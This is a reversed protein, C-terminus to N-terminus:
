RVNIYDEDEPTLNYHENFAQIFTNDGSMLAITKDAYYEGEDLLNNIWDELLQDAIETMVVGSIHDPINDFASMNQREKNHHSVELYEM